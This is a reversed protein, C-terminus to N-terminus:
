ECLVEDFYRPYTMTLLKFVDLIQSLALGALTATIFERYSSSFVPICTGGHKALTSLEDQLFQVRVKTKDRLLVNQAYEM